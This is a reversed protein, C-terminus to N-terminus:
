LIKESNIEQITAPNQAEIYFQKRGEMQLDFFDEAYDSVNQKRQIPLEFM